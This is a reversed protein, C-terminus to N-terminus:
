KSYSEIMTKWQTSAILKAEDVGLDCYRTLLKVARKEVNVMNCDLMKLIGSLAFWAPNEKHKMLDLLEIRAFKKFDGPMRNVEIPRKWKSSELAFADADVKSEFLMTHEYHASYTTIKWRHTPLNAKCWNMAVYEFDSQFSIDFCTEWNKKYEFIELPTLILRELKTIIM